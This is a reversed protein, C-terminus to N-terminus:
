KQIVKQIRKIERKKINNWVDEMEDIPDDMDIEPSLTIRYAGKGQKGGGGGSKGGLKKCFDPVSLSANVSRISGEIRDGAVVAFAIATEVSAWSVMEEAMDAILDREKSPIVGLGVIAYGEKDVTADVCGQAKKDIWFKPRKFFVIQHLYEPRRYEFLDSFAERDVETSDDSLLYNTDTMVGAILATAVKADADVDDEFWNDKPLLRKIIQYIIASASGIKMHILNGDFDHPLDRHHDIVVDFSVPKNGTGSNEPITDVLARFAYLEAQYEAVPIMGPDLLNCMVNNQPHAVSGDFFIDAELGYKKHIFWRLGMMSGIADPDPTRHAFIAVRGDEPIALLSKDLVTIATDIDTCPKKKGNGNIGNKSPLPLVSVGGQKPHSGDKEESM